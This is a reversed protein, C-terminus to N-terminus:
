QTNRYSGYQKGDDFLTQVIAVLASQGENEANRGTIDRQHQGTVNKCLKEVVDFSVLGFDADRAADKEDCQAYVEKEEFFYFHIFLALLHEERAFPIIHLDEHRAKQHVREVGRYEDEPDSCGGRDNCMGNFVPDDNKHGAQAPHETSVDQFYKQRAPDAVPKRWVIDM